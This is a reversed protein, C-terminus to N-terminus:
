AQTLVPLHDYPGCLSHLGLEVIDDHLAQWNAGCIEPHKEELFKHIMRVADFCSDAQVHVATESTGLDIIGIWHKM